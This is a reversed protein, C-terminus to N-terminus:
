TRGKKMQMFIIYAVAGAIIVTGGTWAATKAAVTVGRTIDEIPTTIEHAYPHLITDKMLGAAQVDIMARLYDTIDSDSYGYLGQLEDAFRSWNSSDIGARIDRAVLVYRQLFTTIAGNDFGIVRWADTFPLIVSSWKHYKRLQDAMAAAVTDIDAPAIQRIFPPAPVTPDAGLFTEYYM